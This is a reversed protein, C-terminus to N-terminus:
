QGVAPGSPVAANSPADPSSATMSSAAEGSPSSSADSAPAGSKEDDTPALLGKLYEAVEDMDSAGIAFAWAGDEKAIRVLQNDIKGQYRSVRDGQKMAVSLEAGSWAVDQRAKPLRDTALFTLKDLLGSGQEPKLEKGDLKWASEYAKKEPESKTLTWKEGKWELEVSTVADYELKFVAKDLFDEATKLLGSLLTDSAEYVAPQDEAKVYTTGAVPLASGILLKRVSGDSLVAEIQSTPKDFGFQALDTPSEDIIGKVKLGTLAEAVADVTLKQVPYAEPKSMIWSDGDRKLAILSEGSGLRLEKIDASQLTFLGPDQKAEKRFYNESRAYAWGAALVVVLLLTPLLKRM